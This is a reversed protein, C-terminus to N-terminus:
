LVKIRFAFDSPPHKFDGAPLDGYKDKIRQALKLKQSDSDFFLDSYVCVGEKIIFSDHEFSVDPFRKKFAKHSVANLALCDIEEQVSSDGDKDKAHGAEHLIAEAVAIKEAENKTEKYIENILITNEDFNYQAHIKESPLQAFKVRINSEKIFDVAEKGSSFPLVAGTKEVEIVDNEDFKIYNLKNIASLINKDRIWPISPKTTFLYNDKPIPQSNYFHISSASNKTGFSKNFSVPAILIM